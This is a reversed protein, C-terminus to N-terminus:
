KGPRRIDQLNNMARELEERKIIRGYYNNEEVYAPFQDYFAASVILNAKDQSINSAATFGNARLYPLLIDFAILDDMYPDKNTFVKWGRLVKGIATNDNNSLTQAQELARDRIILDYKRIINKDSEAIDPNDLAAAYISHLELIKSKDGEYSLTGNKQKFDLGSGLAATRLNETKNVGIPSDAAVRYQRAQERIYEETFKSLDKGSGWEKKIASSFSNFANQRANKEALSAENIDGYEDKFVSMIRSHNNSFSTDDILGKLETVATDVAQGNQKALSVISNLATDYSFQGSNYSAVIEQKGDEYRSKYVTENHATVLPRMKLKNEDTLNSEDVDKLPIVKTSDMRYSFELQTDSQIKNDRATKYEKVQEKRLVGGAEMKALFNDDYFVKDELQSKMLNYDLDQELKLEASESKERDAAREKARAEQESKRLEAIKTYLPTKEAQTLTDDSTIIKEIDQYNEPNQLLANEYYAAKEKNRSQTNKLYDDIRKTVATSTSPNVEWQAMLRNATEHPTNSALIEPMNTRIFDYDIGSKSSSSSGQGGIDGSDLATDLASDALNDIRTMTAANITPNESKFRRTEELIEDKTIMGAIRQNYSNVIDSNISTDKGPKTEKVFDNYGKYNENKLLRQEAGAKDLKGQNYLALTEEYDDTFLNNRATRQAKELALRERELSENYQNAKNRIDNWDIGFKDYKAGVANGYALAMNPNQTYLKGVLDKAYWKQLEDKRDATMHKLNGIMNLGAAMYQDTDRTNRTLAAAASMENLTRTAQIDTFEHQKRLYMKEQNLKHNDAWKRYAPSSYFSKGFVSDTYKTEYVQNYKKNIEELQCPDTADEMEHMQQLELNQLGAVYEENRMKQYSSLFQASSKMLEGSQRLPSEWRIQPMAPAGQTQIMGKQTDSIGPLTQKNAM